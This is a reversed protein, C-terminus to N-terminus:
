LEFLKLNLIWFGFIMEIFFSPVVFLLSDIRDLIGGHGPILRGFDKIHLSRKLMSEFLDGLTAFVTAFIGTLIWGQVSGLLEFSYLNFCYYFIFAAGINFALGGIFGEWTKKPSLNPFMKHRGLLSGVIYAGTDNIWIMSIACILIWPDPIINVAFVLLALPLGIYFQSFVGVSISQLPRNQNLFIQLVGRLGMFLAWIFLLIIGFDALVSFSFVFVVLAVADILWTVTWLSPNNRAISNSELEYSAFVAFVAMLVATIVPGLVIAGVLLGAYVLGSVTRIALNKKDLAM